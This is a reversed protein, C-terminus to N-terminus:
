IRYPKSVESGYYYFGGVTDKVMSKVLRNQSIANQFASFAKANNKFEEFSIKSIRIGNVHNTSKKTSSVDDDKQCNTLTFLLAIAVFAVIFKIKNKM